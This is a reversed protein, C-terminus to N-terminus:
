VIKILEKLIEYLIKQVIQTRRFTPDNVPIYNGVLLWVTSSFQTDRECFGSDTAGGNPTPVWSDKEM